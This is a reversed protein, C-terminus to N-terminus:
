AKSSGATLTRVDEVTCLEIELETVGERIATDCLTRVEQEREMRYWDGLEDAYGPHCCLETIGTDFRELVAVLSASTVSNSSRERAYGAAEAAGPREHAEIVGRNVRRSYGFDDPNDRVHRKTQM